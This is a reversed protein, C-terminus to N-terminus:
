TVNVFRLSPFIMISKFPATYLDMETGYHIYSIPTSCRLEKKSYNPAMEKLNTSQNTKRATSIKWKKGM